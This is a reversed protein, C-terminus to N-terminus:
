VFYIYLHIPFNEKARKVLDPSIKIIQSKRFLFYVFFSDKSKPPFFDWFGNKLIHISRFVCKKLIKKFKKNSDGFNQLFETM